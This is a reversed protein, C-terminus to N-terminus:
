MTTVEEMEERVRRPAREGKIRERCEGSGPKNYINWTVIRGGRLFRSSLHTAQRGITSDPSLDRFCIFALLTQYGLTNTGLTSSDLGRGSRRGATFHELRGKTPRQHYASKEYRPVLSTNSLFASLYVHSFRHIGQRGTHLTQCLARQM